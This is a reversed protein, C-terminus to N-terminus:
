NPLHYDGVSVADADGLAVMAVEAASWPGVGPLAMLRSRAAGPAMTVTEELRHHYSCARRVADARKREVGLPHFAYSPLGALTTASPPVMMGAGGAPGPAREGYRRVLNAYSRRAEKGTVKQELITPVLAETVAQSRTIRLGPMRRHLDHLLPHTPAFGAADDGAGCLAPAADLAWASGPGWATATITGDGTATLRITVPGDPTRTARWAGDNGIRMAPDMGGRRLPSLTLRLNVPHPPRFARERM